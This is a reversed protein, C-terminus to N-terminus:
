NIYSRYESNFGLSFGEKEKRSIFHESASVMAGITGTKRIPISSNFEQIWLEVKNPGILHAELSCSNGVTDFLTRSSFPISKNM